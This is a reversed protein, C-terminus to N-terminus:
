GPRAPDPLRTRFLTGLGTQPQFHGSLAQAQWVSVQNATLVPKGLRQELAELLESTHLATDPVLLAQADPHDAAEAMAIVRDPGLTGVEAATIIQEGSTAVVQIGTESLFGCFHETVDDPYSAAIAVRSIGLTALAELYALSTSSAPVGLFQELQKAQRLAGELGRVFSGSTCAWIVAGLTQGRLERAGITLTEVTGIELLADVRHADETVPTHVIRAEAPPSLRAALAVLDDSASHGPYLFGLTAPEPGPSDPAMM